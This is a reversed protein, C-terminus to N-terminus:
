NEIFYIPLDWEKRSKISVRQKAYTTVRYNCFFDKGHLKNKDWKMKQTHTLTAEYEIDM